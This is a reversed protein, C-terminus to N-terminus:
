FALRRVRNIIPLALARPAHQGGIAGARNLLGPTVVRKGRELGEVADRAVQEVSTWFPGPLQSSAEGAGAVEVFETQVPGPCLATVTVGRRALEVHTAESFSLVFAKTAAYCASGPLPQFAATSALNLIAGRGRDAMASSYRVQLDLVAECNLRAMELQRARALRHATGFAGFGANNILVEVELGLESVARQVRDREGESGLDATLFEARVGHERSLEGALERLREERRATLVVAHGRRALERAIQAGIGSSAGTVLAASSDTPPPLAM